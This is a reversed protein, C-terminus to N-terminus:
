PKEIPVPAVPRVALLVANGNGLDLRKARRAAFSDGRVWFVGMKLVPQNGHAAIATPRVACPRGSNTAKAMRSLNPSGVM